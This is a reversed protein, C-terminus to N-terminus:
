YTQDFEHSGQVEKAYCGACQHFRHIEFDGRVAALSVKNTSRAFLRWFTVAETSTTAVGTRVECLSHGHEAVVSEAPAECLSPGITDWWWWVIDLLGNKPGSTGGGGTTNQSICDSSKFAHTPFM